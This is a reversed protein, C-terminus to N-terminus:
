KNDNKKPLKCSRKKLFINYRYHNQNKNFVSKILWICFSDYSEIKIRAYNLSWVDTFM